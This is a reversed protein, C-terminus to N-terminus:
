HQIRQASTQHHGPWGSSRHCTHRPRCHDRSDRTRGRRRRQISRVTRWGLAPACCPGRCVSSSRGSRAWCSWWSWPSHSWRFRCWSLRYYRTLSQACFRWIRQYFREIDMLGSNVWLIISKFGLLSLFSDLGPWSPICASFVSTLQAKKERENNEWDKKDQAWWIKRRESGNKHWDWLHVPSYTSVNKAEIAIPAQQLLQVIIFQIM